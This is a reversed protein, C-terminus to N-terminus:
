SYEEIIVIGSGGAAGASTGSGAAGGAGITISSTGTTTGYYIALGGAGGGAGGVVSGNNNAGGGGAGTNAKGAVGNTSSLGGSGAGTGFIGSGGSGGGSNFVAGNRVGGSGQLGVLYTGSAGGGIGGTFTGGGGGGGGGIGSVISGISSATGSGGSGSNGGGGGGGGQVLAKINNTGSTPTYTGTTTFTQINLLRGASVVVPPTQALINWYTGDCSLVIYQYQATLAYTNSGDITDTSHGTITVQYSSSDTKKFAIMMGSATAASPLNATIAGSIANCLQLTRTSGTTTSGVTPITATFTSTQSVPTLNLWTLGLSDLDATTTNLYGGWLDQDQSNNVLPQLLGFNQTSNPV